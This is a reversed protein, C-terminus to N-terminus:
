LGLLSRCRNIGEITLDIEKKPKAAKILAFYFRPLYKSFMEILLLSIVLHSLM